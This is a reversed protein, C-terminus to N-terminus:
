KFIKEIDTYPLASINEKLPYFDDGPYIVFGKEAKIDSFAQFFGRTIQPSLTRKIEVCVPKESGGSIVLDIEAGGSSRYFFLDYDRPMAAAIQEIIFGEWSVGASPHGLLKDMSDIGLLSHLLGSDRIYIKPSKTLRKKINLHYPLLQRIIFTENLIDLYHRVTPSTVGLSSGIKSANWLQGHAHAVMQWFRHLQISPVRIGLQPIDRELYTRTLTQRWEYSLEDTEALYSLPYGGRMWLTDLDDIEQFSFPSLEHYIIRGALSESSQRKLDPSSTDLLLFSGNKKYSDALSRLLPFLEPMRQVEDIIIMSEKYNKLYLEANELKGADSPLELDLYIVNRDMEDAITKALTTKGTQRAGIVSVVPYHQLSKLIQKKLKRMIM